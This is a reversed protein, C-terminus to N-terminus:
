WLCLMFPIQMISLLRVLNRWNPVFYAITSVLAIGIGFMSGDLLAPLVLLLSYKLKFLNGLVM